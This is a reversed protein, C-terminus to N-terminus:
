KATNIDQRTGWLYQVGSSLTAAGVAWMLIHAVLATSPVGLVLLVFVVIISVMQLVPKVKGWRNAAIVKGGPAGAGGARGPM